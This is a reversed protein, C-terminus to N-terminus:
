TRGSRFGIPVSRATPVSRSRASTASQATSRTSNSGAVSSRGGVTASLAQFSRRGSGKRASSGRCGAVPSSAPRSWSEWVWTHGSIRANWWRTIRSSRPQSPGDPPLGSRRSAGISGRPLGGLLARYIAADDPDIGAMPDDGPTLRILRGAPGRGAHSGIRDDFAFLRGGAQRDGALRGVAGLVALVGGHQNLGAAPVRRGPSSCSAARRPMAWPMARTASSRSEGRPSKAGGDTAPGRCVVTVGPADLGAAFEPGARGEVEVVAQWSGALDSILLRHGEAGSLRVRAHGEDLLRALEANIRQYDRIEPIPVVPTTRDKADSRTMYREGLRIATAPSPRTVNRSCRAAPSSGSIRRPTRTSSRGVARRSAREPGEPEGSGPGSDRERPRRVGQLRRSATEWKSSSRVTRAWTRSASCGRTEHSRRNPGSRAIAGSRPTFSTSCCGPGTTCLIPNDQYTAAIRDGLDAAVEGINFAILPFNYKTTANSVRMM